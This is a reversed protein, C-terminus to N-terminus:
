KHKHDDESDAEHHDDGHQKDVVEDELDDPYENFFNLDDRQVKIWLGFEGKTWVVDFRKSHNVEEVIAQIKIRQENLFRMTNSYYLYSATLIILSTVTVVSAVLILLINESKVVNYFDTSCLLLSILGLFCLVIVLYIINTTVAPLGSKIDYDLLKVIRALIQTVYESEEATYMTEDSKQAKNLCNLVFRKHGEEYYYVLSGKETYPIGKSLLSIM